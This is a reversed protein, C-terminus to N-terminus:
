PILAGGAAAGLGTGAGKAFDGLVNEWWPTSSEQTFNAGLTANPNMGGALMPLISLLQQTASFTDANYGQMIGNSLSTSQGLLNNIM